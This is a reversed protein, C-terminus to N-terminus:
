KAFRVNGGTTGLKKWFGLNNLIIGKDLKTDQRAIV